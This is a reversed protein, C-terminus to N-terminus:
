FVLLCNKRTMHIVYFFQRQQELNKGDLEDAIWAEDAGSTFTVGLGWLVQLLYDM